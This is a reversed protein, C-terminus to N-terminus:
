AMSAALAGGVLVGEAAVSEVSVHAARDPGLLERVAARVREQFGPYSNWVDGSVAVVGDGAMEVLAFVGVAALRAARTGIQQVVAKVLQRDTLSAPAIGLRDRLLTRVRLLAPTTDAEIVALDALTLYGPTLVATTRQGAFLASQAALQVLALRATEALGAGTLMKAWGGANPAHQTTLAAVADVSEDMSTVPLVIGARDLSSWDVTMLRPGAKGPKDVFAATTSASDVTMAAVITRRSRAAAALFTGVTADVLAVARVPVARRALAVQVADQVNDVHEADSTVIALPVEGHVKTARAAVDNAHDNLFVEVAHAVVDWHAAPDTTPPILETAIVAGQDIAVAHIRAPALELVLFVGTESGRPLLPKASAAHVVVDGPAHQNQLAQVLESYLHTAIRRMRDRPVQLGILLDTTAQDPSSTTTTYSAASSTAPFYPSTTGTTATQMTSTRTLFAATAM